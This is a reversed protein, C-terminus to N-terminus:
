GRVDATLALDSVPGDALLQSLNVHRLEVHGRDVRAAKVDGRAQLALEATGARGRLDARAADGDLGGEGSLEVPVSPTWSPTLARGVSPPVVLRDLRAQMATGKKSGSGKLVLGALGLDVDAELSKEDGKGQVALRLPGELLGSVAARGDVKGDFASTPGAYRGAGHLGLGTLAVKRAEKGSGQVVRVAGRELTFDDVLFTFPLPGSSPQPPKPHKAAVARGLNSGEEDLTLWVEPHELRVLSLHVRKGILGLLSVRVEVVDVHAVREGEPSELTVDRLVIHGGQILLSGASLKGALAENAAQVGFALVRAGGSPTQVYAVLGLVVLVVLLILGLM